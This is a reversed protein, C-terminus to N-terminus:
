VQKCCSFIIVGLIGNHNSYFAGTKINLAKILPFNYKQPTKQQQYKFGNLSKIQGRPPLYTRNVKVCLM